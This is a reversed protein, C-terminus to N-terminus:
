DGARKDCHEREYRREAGHVNWTHVSLDGRQTFVEGCHKCEYRREAGHM